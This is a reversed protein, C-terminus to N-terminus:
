EEEKKMVLSIATKIDQLVTENDLPVDTCFKRIFVALDRTSSIFAEHNSDIPDIRVTCCGDEPYHIISFMVKYVEFWIWWGNNSYALDALEKM